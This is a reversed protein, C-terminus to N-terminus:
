IQLMPIEISQLIVEHAKQRRRNRSMQNALRWVVGKDEFGRHFNASHRQQKGHGHHAAEGKVEGLRVAVFCPRSVQYAPEFTVIIFELM